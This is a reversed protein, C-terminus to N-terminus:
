APIEAASNSLQGICNEIADEESEGFDTACIKQGSSLAIEVVANTQTGTKVIGGTCSICAIQAPNIFHARRSLDFILCFKTANM